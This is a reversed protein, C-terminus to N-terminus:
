FIVILNGTHTWKNQDSISNTQKQYSAQKLNEKLELLETKRKQLKIIKGEIQKLEKEVESLVDVINFM